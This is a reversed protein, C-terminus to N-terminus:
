DSSAHAARRETGSARADIGRDHRARESAGSGWTLPPAVAVPPAEFAVLPKSAPETESFGQVDSSEGRHLTLIERRRDAPSEEDRTMTTGRRDIGSEHRRNARAGEAARKEAPVSGCKLAPM